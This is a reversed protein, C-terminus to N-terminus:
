SELFIILAIPLLAAVVQLALILISQKPNKPLWKIAFYGIIVVQVLLSLQFLRAPAGEDGQNSIGNIAVHGLIAVLSTFSMVVPIWASPQKLLLKTTSM